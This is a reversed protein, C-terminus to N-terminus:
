QRRLFDLSVFEFACHNYLRTFLNLLQGSDLLVAVLWGAMYKKNYMLIKHEIKLKIHICNNNYVSFRYIIHIYNNELM